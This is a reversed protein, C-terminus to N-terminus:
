ESVPTFEHKAWVDATFECGDANDTDDKYAPDCGEVLFETDAVDNAAPITVDVVYIILEPDTGSRYTRGIQPPKIAM